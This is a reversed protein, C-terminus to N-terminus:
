YGLGALWAEVQSAAEERENQATSGTMTLGETVSSGTCTAALTSFMGSEGSGEHTSFPHITKGEWTLTEIATYVCMPLDGWWCPFGFFVTDYGGLDPLAKLEPRAGDSKEQSAVDICEDYSAPYAIAPELEFLDAGTREAIMQALVMTNGTEVTGVRYNEGARSYVLVLANAAAAPAETATADAAEQAAGEGADATTAEDRAAEQSETAAEDTDASRAQGCGALALAGALVAFQRRTLKKM